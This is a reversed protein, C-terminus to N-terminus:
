GARVQQQNVINCSSQIRNVIELLLSRTLAAAESKPRYHTVPKYYFAAEEFTPRSKLVTEFVQSGYLQRLRLQLTKQIARRIHFNTIFCGLYILAPNGNAIANSVQVNVDILAEMPNKAPQLPTIVYNSAMLAAWAPLNAINPPTDILIVDFYDSVDGLFDRVAFQQEGLQLPQPLDFQNLHASSPLVFIDDIETPRVLARMDPERDGDFLSAVTEHPQLKDVLDDGFFNATLSGQSDLDVILVRCGQEAFAGALNQTHMTRGVGGKKALLTLVFEAMVQKSGTSCATPMDEQEMAEEKSNM